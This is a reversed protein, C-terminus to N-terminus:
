GVPHRRAGATAITAAATNRVVPRMVPVGVEAVPEEVLPLVEAERVVAVPQGVLERVRYLRAGAIQRTVEMVALLPVLAAVVWCALCLGFAQSGRDPLLSLLGPFDSLVRSVGAPLEGPRFWLYVGGALLAVMGLRLSWTGVELIVKQIVPIPLCLVLLICLGVWPLVQEYM